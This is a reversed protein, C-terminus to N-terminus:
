ADLFEGVTRAVGDTWHPPVYDIADWSSHKDLVSYLPRQTASTMENSPVPIIEAGDAFQGRRAAMTATAVAADYRSAMGGDTFHLIGTVDRRDVLRWIAHALNGAHTPTSVQDDVVRMPEGRAVHDCVLRVFNPALESHVWATRLVVASEDADLVGAEGDAKTRGYVNIPSTPSTTLYPRGSAGDFVYDTSLHILRAKHTHAITALQRPAHANLSAAGEPDREAVDVKAIAACNIVTTPRLAAIIESLKAGDRIDADASGLATLHVNDPVNRQLARGVHGHAGLLLVRQGNSTATPM